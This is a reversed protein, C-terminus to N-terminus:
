SRSSWMMQQYFKLSQSAGQSRM